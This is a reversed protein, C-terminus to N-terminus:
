LILLYEKRASDNIQEEEKKQYVSNQRKLKNPCHKFLRELQENGFSFYVFSFSFPFLLFFSISISFFTAIYVIKKIYM